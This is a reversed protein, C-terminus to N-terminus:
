GAIATALLAPAAAPDAQRAHNFKGSFDDWASV